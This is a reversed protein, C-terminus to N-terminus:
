VDDDGMFNYMDTQAAKAQAVRKRGEVLQRHIEADASVAVKQAAYADIHSHKALQDLQKSAVSYKGKQMAVKYLMYMEEKIVEANLTSATLQENYVHRVAERVNERDLYQIGADPSRGIAEAARRHDYDKCYEGVFEQEDFSLRVGTMRELVSFTHYNRAM